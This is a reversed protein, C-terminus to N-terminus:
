ERNDMFTMMVSMVLMYYRLYGARIQTSTVSSSDVIDGYSSIMCHDMAFVIIKCIYTIMVVSVAGGFMSATGRGYMRRNM